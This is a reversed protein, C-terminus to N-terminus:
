STLLLTVTSGYPKPSEISLLLIIVCPLLDLKAENTDDNKLYTAVKSWDGFNRLVNVRRMKSLIRTLIM